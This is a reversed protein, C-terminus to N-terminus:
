HSKTKRHGGSVIKLLRVVPAEFALSIVFSTVFAMVAYGSYSIIVMSNQLHFPGDLLFCTYMMITPHVLYACYTLRSLPLLGRYSLVSNVLGGYGCCCAISVWALAVGWATHGVSVYFATPWVEFYGDVMGFILSGIIALSTPWGVAVLWYPMKVQCKTKHLYWGVIMGVLYPGIRSWPKDYLGDFMEFPEQIRAKYMSSVSIYITTAWSSVMILGLSGVAFKPHKVSILLLIIGVVYFQTDNAMYWSWVMCMERQSYLNNIYLLNRWWFQDCTIHDYQAPEFVSHSNTYRLTIENLGIVFAYAPSLRVVRYFFLVIFNKILSFFEGKTYFNGKPKELLDQCFSSQSIVSVSLASNTYGNMNKHIDQKDKQQKMEERKAAKKDETRLFLVTVLLGSIFFFSDVCYSANGVSQYMFNREIITRMTKNTSIYFVTLYTHVMIVWVVSLFRIGHLSTLAGDTPRHTSLIARGNSLMSFSLLVEAWTGCTERRLDRDQNDKTSNGDAQHTSDSVPKNNNEHQALELDRPGASQKFRRELYGEYCSATVMLLFVIISVTGLIHLKTDHLINYSSPVPRVGVTKVSSPLGAAAARRSAAAEAEGMIALIASENCSAPLCEGVLIVRSQPLHDEDLTVNIRVMHFKTDFPPTSSYYQKLQLDRCSTFSGLWYENGFMVNQNYQGSADYIKSAWVKGENLGAFYTKLDDKCQPPLAIGEKDVYTPWDHHDMLSRLWAMRSQGRSVETINVNAGVVSVLVLITVILMARTERYLKLCM